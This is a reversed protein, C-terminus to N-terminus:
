SNSKLSVSVQQQLYTFRADDFRRQFSKNGFNVSPYKITALNTPVFAVVKPLLDHVGALFLSLVLLSAHKVSFDEHNTEQRM